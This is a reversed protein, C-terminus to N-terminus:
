QCLCGNLIGRKGRGTCFRYKGSTTTDITDSETSTELVASGRNGAHYALTDSELNFAYIIDTPGDLHFSFLVNIVDGVSPGFFFRNDNPDDSSVPKSFTIETVGNDRTCSVDQIDDSGGLDTDKTPQVFSTSWYDGVHCDGSADMHAVVIDADTMGGAPSALGMGLWGEGQLKITFLIRQATNQRLRRSSGNSESMLAWTLEYNGDALSLSGGVTAM